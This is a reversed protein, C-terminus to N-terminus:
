IDWYGTRKARRKNRWLLQSLARRDAGQGGNKHNQRWKRTGKESTKGNNIARAKEEKRKIKTM